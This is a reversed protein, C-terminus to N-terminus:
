VKVCEQTSWSFINRINYYSTQVNEVMKNGKLVIKTTCHVGPIVWFGERGQDTGKYNEPVLPHLQSSVVHRPTTTIVVTVMSVLYKNFVTVGTEVWGELDSAELMRGRVAWDGKFVTPFEMTPFLLGSSILQYVGLSSGKIHKLVKDAFLLM